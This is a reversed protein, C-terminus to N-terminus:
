ENSASPLVGTKLPQGGNLSSPNAKRWAEFAARAGEPSDFVEVGEYINRFATLRSRRWDVDGSWFRYELLVPVLVEDKLQWGIAGRGESCLEQVLSKRAKTEIFTSRSAWEGPSDESRATTQLRQWADAPAYYKPADTLLVGSLRGTSSGGMM